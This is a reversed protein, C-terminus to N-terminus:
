SVKFRGVSEQLAQAVALLQKFSETVQGAESSTKNSVQAVENMTQTVVESTQAQEVAALAIAEVLQNIKTSAESIQNLSSRTEEVLKTGAVVQETGSEMAVVVENTEAQIQAVVKEIEATAEASQRALTRVEEAVVAFGRGEEGAHAAEISANLALLNTQDAFSSILNVVKSIKQSSEGLRKVKKATEAANERIAMFGDVTRNMAADGAAVTKAAQQVFAEAAEANSSVARISETMAQIRDLAATINDTQRAAETSLSQISAENTSTTTSVEQVASQVQTVLKRLSEITANYSDAITGIEDPTVSARISLDGQSVPDVQMLLELARQQLHEKERRQQQEALKQQQILTIRELIVGMQAAVQKLFNIEKPQWQHFSHCHHAVLLGFLQGQSIIPVVLNAKVQLRKLLDMHDPHYNTRFVNSTPVVRGNTYANLLDQPICPDTAKEDLASTLGSHVSEHSLYGSWDPNFRYIVTRDCKLLQRTGQLAQEFAENIDQEDAIASGTIATLLGAQDISLEQERTFEKLQASLKNINSKLAAVEDAGQVELHTDLEGQGLKAIAKTADLIPRTARDALYAAVLGVLIATLGTGALIAILLQRRVAFAASTPTLIAAKWTLAQAGPLEPMPVYTVFQEVNLPKQVARLATPQSQEVVANLLPLNALLNEGELADNESVFAENNSNLLLYDSAGRGYISVLEELDEVTSRSRVIAITQGTVADKVPAAFHLSFVGTTKSPRPQAIAPQDTKLVAQFYDRDFHNPLRDGTEGQAILNGQLDFIALSNYLGSSNEIINALVKDKQQGTTSEQLDPNTFIPLDAIDQIDIYRESVFRNVKDAMDATITLQSETVQETLTKGAFYYAFGGVLLVPITGIAVAVTTAKKQLSVRQWWHESSPEQSIAQDQYPLVLPESATPLPNDHRDSQTASGNDDIHHQRDPKPSTQTM